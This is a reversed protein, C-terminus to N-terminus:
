HNMRRLLTFLVGVFSVVGLIIWVFLNSDDGTKPVLGKSTKVVNKKNIDKNDKIEKLESENNKPINDNDSENDAITLKNLSIEDVNDNATNPKSIFVDGLSSTSIYKVAELKNDDITYVIEVTAILNDNDLTLNVSNGNVQVKLDNFIKQFKEKDQTNAAFRVKYRYEGSKTFTVPKIGHNILGENVEKNNSTMYVSGDADDFRWTSSMFVVKDPLDNIEIFIPKEGFKPKNVEINIINKDKEKEATPIDPQIDDPKTTENLDPELKYTKEVSAVSREYDLAVLQLEGNIKVMLNEFVEKFRDRNQTKTTFLMKYKYEGPKNFEVPNVGAKILGDNSDKDSSTMETGNDGKHMWFSFMPLVNEPLDKVESFEPKKGFKPEIVTIEIIQKKEDVAENNISGVTSVGSKGNNLDDAVVDEVKPDNIPVNPQTQDKDAEITSVSTNSQDVEEAMTSTVNMYFTLILLSVLIYNKKM